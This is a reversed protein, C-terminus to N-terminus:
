LIAFSILLTGNLAQSAHLNYVDIVVSGASPVKVTAVVPIGQNNTGNEVGAVVFSAAAIKANTLTLSYKSGAATTLSETTVYGRQTTATAAGAVAPGVGGYGGLLILGSGKAVLQLDINTDGGTAAIQPDGGTAANTVTVENVASATTATKIVENGNSDALTPNNGVEVVNSANLKLVAVEATDAANRWYLSRNNPFATDFQDGSAVPVGPRGSFWAQIVAHINFMKSAM